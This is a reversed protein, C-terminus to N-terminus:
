DFPERPPAGSPAAAPLVPDAPQCCSPTGDLEAGLCATLQRRGLENLHVPDEFLGVDPVADACYLLRAGAERAVEGWLERKRARLGPWQQDLYAAFDARLPMLVVSLRHGEAHWRGLTGALSAVASPGLPETFLELWAKAYRSVQAAREEASPLEDPAPLPTERGCAGAALVQAEFEERTRGPKFLRGFLARVAERRGFLVSAQGLLADGLGVRKRLDAFSPDVWSSYSAVNLPNVAYLLEVEGRADIGAAQMLRDAERVGGSPFALNLGRGARRRGLACADVGREAASDGVVLLTPPAARRALGLRHQYYTPYSAIGLALLAPGRTALRASAELGLLLLVTWLATSRLLRRVRSM